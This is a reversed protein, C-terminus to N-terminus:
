LAKLSKPPSVRCHLPQQAQHAHQRDAILQELAEIAGVSAGDALWPSVGAPVPRAVGPSPHLGGLQSM